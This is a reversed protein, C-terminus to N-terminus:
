FPLDEVKGDKLQRWEQKSIFKKFKGTEVSILKIHPGSHEVKCVENEYLVTEVKEYRETLKMVNSLIIDELSFGFCTCLNAVYWLVDGLEEKLHEKNVPSQDRYAKKLIDLVEGTEGGLGLAFVKTDYGAKLNKSAFEQYEKLTM